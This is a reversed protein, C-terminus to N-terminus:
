VVCFLLHTPLCDLLAVRFPLPSFLLIVFRGAFNGFMNIFVLIRQMDQKQNKRPVFPIFNILILGCSFSLLSSFCCRWLARYLDWMGITKESKELDKNKVLETEEEVPLSFFYLKKRNETENNSYSRELIPCTLFQPSNSPTSYPRDPIDQLHDNDPSLFFFCISSIFFVWNTYLASM